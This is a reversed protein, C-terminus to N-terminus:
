GKIKRKKRILITATIGVGIVLIGGASALLIVTLNNQDDDKKNNSAKKPKKSVPSDNKSTDLETKSDSSDSFDPQETDDLEETFETDDVISEVPKQLKDTAKVKLVLMDEYPVTVAFKAVKSASGSIINEGTVANTVTYNRYNELGTSEFPMYVTMKGSKDHVNYNPVIIIATDGMYRAYPQVAECGAVNVKCINSDRFIEPFYEFIEANERRVRIMAKVDEYFARNEPQNLKDWNIETNYQLTTKEHTFNDWEEGIYWLPIFPAYIAQYGIALRNGQVVSCFHDHCDITHVYYQYGGGDGIEQSFESGINEGKKISDVINFKELFTLTPKLVEMNDIAHMVGFQETDYATGRENPHESMMFLKRGKALLRSRVEEHVEYGAYYPEVDYRFGDIGTKVAIDVLESIYWEKFEENEWNFYGNAAETYWDPHETCLPANTMTGWSIVDLIIRINRKHAEDVFTKFAAWGEEYNTTGSLAPDVTHLGLNGYGNGTPGPDNVPCIWLGNVGMEEYHELMKVASEFTGEPTCTSLRVEAMILSSVWEPTGLQNVKVESDPAYKPMLDSNDIIKEDAAGVLLYCSGSFAIAIVSIITVMLYSIKKIM